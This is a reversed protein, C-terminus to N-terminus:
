GVQRYQFDKKVEALEDSDKKDVNVTLRTRNAVIEHSKAFLKVKPIDFWKSPSQENEARPTYLTTKIRKKYYEYSRWKQKTEFSKKQKSRAMDRLAKINNFKRFM